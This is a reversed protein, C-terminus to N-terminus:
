CRKPGLNRGESKFNYVPKVRNGPWSWRRQVLQPRGRELTRVIPGPDTIKVDARAELNPVGEPFDIRIKLDEFDQAISAADIEQRYDNCMTPRREAKGARRTRMINQRM